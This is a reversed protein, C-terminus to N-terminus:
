QVFTPWAEPEIVVKGYFKWRHTPALRKKTAPGLTNLRLNEKARVIQSGHAM